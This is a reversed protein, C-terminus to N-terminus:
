QNKKSAKKNIKALIKLAKKDITSEPAPSTVRLEQITTTNPLISHNEISSIEIASPHQKKSRALQVKRIIAQALMKGFQGIFGAILVLVIWKLVSWTSLYDLIETM